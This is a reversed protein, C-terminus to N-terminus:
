ATAVVPLRRISRLRVAEERAPQTGTVARRHEELHRAYAALVDPAIPAPLPESALMEGADSDSERLWRIIWGDEAPAVVFPLSAAGAAELAGTLRQRRAEWHPQFLTDLLALFRRDPPIALTGDTSAAQRPPVAPVGLSVGAADSAIRRYLSRAVPAPSGDAADWLQLRLGYAEASIATPRLVGDAPDYRFRIEVTYGGIEDTRAASVPDLQSWGTLNGLAALAQRDRLQRHLPETLYGRETLLQILTEDPLADGGAPAAPENPVSPLPFTKGMKLDVCHDPIWHKGNWRRLSLAHEVTPAFVVLRSQSAAGRFWVAYAPDALEVDRRRANHAHIVGDGQPLVLLYTARMRPIKAFERRLYDPTGAALRAQKRSEEHAIRHLPHRDADAHWLVTVQREALLQDLRNTLSPDISCVPRAAGQQEGTEERRNILSVAMQSDSFVRVTSGAPTAELGAIIAMVEAHSNDMGAAHGSVVRDPAFVACWGGGRGHPGTVQSGDVYMDLVEATVM